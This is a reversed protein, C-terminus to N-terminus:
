EGAENDDAEIDHREFQQLRRLVPRAPRAPQTSVAPAHITPGTHLEQGTEWRFLLRLAEAILVSTNKRQRLEQLASLYRRDENDLYITTRLGAM